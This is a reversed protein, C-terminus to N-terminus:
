TATGYMASQQSVLRVCQDSNSKKDYIWVMKGLYVEQWGDVDVLRNPPKARSTGPPPPPVRRISVDNLLRLASLNSVDTFLEKRAPDNVVYFVRPVEEESEEDVDMDNDDEPAGEAPASEVVAAGADSSEPAFEREAEQLKACFAEWAAEDSYDTRLLIGVGPADVSIDDLPDDDTSFDAVEADAASM